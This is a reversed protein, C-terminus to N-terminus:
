PILLTTGSTKRTELDTHARGADALPYTQNINIRVKNSQVIDFLSNACAELAPRTAVYGFLTPRTAFLSGKQALIGISFAEVPGSSNGFSVWLGRPKICDLSAPYTDRGVSDYVVDVGRGDTLEKVRAVFNDTRYNIVHDYGHALALDIKDQSGATGIVTAGLAKAWQGAILGVGGAAAHFLITTGPGVQYTQNLLYQATMGKLMMAAATELSIGDPVKVLQAADVNRESAYAGDASAYAVRDGVSFLSVGDGVATVIGAGEKGPVFPLASKYLGTRFYVDIFNLGVAVQRIQVEGPGPPSLTVGELKLVEPGGLERVVIAQAM